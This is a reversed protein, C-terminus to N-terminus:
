AGNGDRLARLPDLRAARRAPLDVALASVLALVVSVSAFTLPDRASVEFLVSSLLRTTAAAIALGLVIGVLAVTVGQRLVMRRVAGPDAGLALRVGIEVTRQSVIYSIVGYLGIVGLALAVASAIALLTVTFSAQALSADIIATMTRPTMLPVSPDIRDVAARLSGALTSPDGSTRLVAYMTDLAGGAQGAPVYLMPRAPEDLGSTRLDGVVGVIDLWVEQLQISEGIARDDLFQRAFTRNVWAVPRLQEADVREPLRGEILPVGLTEFYGATVASHMTFAPVASDPRPRSRIDFSSGTLSTAAVPLSSAAGIADVGPLRALEDLVQHYFTVARRRDDQAGPSIGVTLLGEPQFGPDVAHLRVASRLMLSSGVLLVLAMAVQAIILAQRARHRGRGATTGRGGERIVVALSRRASGLAPLLGLVLACLASLALAFGVVTGDMAVEHLRPLRAPGYAVLLRTGIAAIIMGLLGGAMALILSEALFTGVIRARTAGLASRVAVERQRSEARVLFLNAVNAAAVLLVLVVAGLLLWLTRSVDKVVRSKLPAVTVGWGFGSLVDSTIAPFWEPIRRQLQDLERQAAELTTGPALRGLSETGFSGFGAAPDLVLPVLIRTERDPFVFARPMVGVIEAVRGDLQLTRGLVAPDGGFRSQWYAHTLIAVSASTKQLDSELFPRGLAPPIQLVDFLSPTVAVGRVREPVGGGTLNLLKLDYGAMHSLTRVSDRYKLILGPASQLDPMNLGPAHHMIEVVRDSDPYPLPRILVANVVTFMAVNAGIGLALTLAAVAAYGPRTALMRTAVRLELFASSLRTIM